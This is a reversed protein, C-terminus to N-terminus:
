QLNETTHVLSLLKLSQWYKIFIHDLSLLIIHGKQIYIHMTESQNQTHLTHSQFYWQNIFLVKVKISQVLYSVPSIHHSFLTLSNFRDNYMSFHKKIHCNCLYVNCSIILLRIWQRITRGHVWRLRIYSLFFIDTLCLSFTTFLYWYSLSSPLLSIFLIRWLM